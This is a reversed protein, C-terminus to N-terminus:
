KLTSYYAALDATDADSLKGAQMKMMANAKKGSAYDKIDQEFTAPAIGAIKPGMQTGQGEPGHCMACSAAKGKGAAADGAAMAPVALTASLALLGITLITKM